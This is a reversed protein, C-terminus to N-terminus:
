GTTVVEVRKAMLAQGPAGAQTDPLNKAEVLIVGLAAAIDEATYRCEPRWEALRCVFPEGQDNRYKAKGNIGQPLRMWRAAGLAGKDCLGAAAVAEQLREREVPDTIPPTLIFGVQFNGPSTELRWSPLADKLNTEEVKTGVDDLVLAHYAVVSEKRARPPAAAIAAADTYILM